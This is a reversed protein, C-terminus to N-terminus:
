RTTVTESLMKGLVVSCVACVSLAPVFVFVNVVNQVLSWIIAVYSVTLAFVVAFFRGYNVREVAEQDVVSRLLNETQRLQQDTALDVFKRDSDQFRFTPLAYRQLEWPNRKSLIKAINSKELKKLVTQTKRVFQIDNTKEEGYLRRIIDKVDPFFLELQFAAITKVLSYQYEGERLRITASQASAHMAEELFQIDNQSLKRQSM